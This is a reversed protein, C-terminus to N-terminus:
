WTFGGLKHGYMDVFEGTEPRKGDEVRHCNRCMWATAEGERGQPLHVHGADLGMWRHLGTYKCKFNEPTAEMPDVGLLVAVGRLAEVEEDDLFGSGFDTSHVAVDFVVQILYKEIQMPPAAKEAEMAALCGPCTVQGRGVTVDLQAEFPEGCSLEGRRLYHKM